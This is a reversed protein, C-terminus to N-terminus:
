GDPMRWLYHPNQPCRHYCCQSGDKPVNRGRRGPIHNHDCCEPVYRNDLYEPKAFSSSYSSILTRIFDEDSHASKPKCKSHADAPAKETVAQLNSEVKSAEEQTIGSVDISNMELTTEVEADGAVALEVVEETESNPMTQSDNCGGDRAAKRKRQRRYYAPSRKRLNPATPVVHRPFSRIQNPPFTGLGTKLCVFAEGNETEVTLCAKAGAKWLSKFKSYFSDLEFHSM